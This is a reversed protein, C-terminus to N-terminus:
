QNSTPNLGKVQLWKDKKIENGENDTDPALKQCRYAYSFSGDPYKFILRKKTNLCQSFNSQASNDSHSTGRHTKALGSTELDSTDKTFSSNTLIKDLNSHTPLMSVFSKKILSQEENLDDSQNNFDEDDSSLDEQAQPPHRNQESDM